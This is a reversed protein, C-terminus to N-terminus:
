RGPPAFLGYRRGAALVIALALAFGYALSASHVFWVPPTQVLIAPPPSSPGTSGTGVAQHAPPAILGALLLLLLVYAVFALALAARAWPTTARRPVAARVDKEGGEEVVEAGERRLAMLGFCTLFSAITFGIVANSVGSMGYFSCSAGCISTTAYATSITTLEALGGAAVAVVPLLYASVVRVVRPFYLFVVLLFASSTAINEVNVSGDYVFNSTLLGLPNASSGEVSSTPAIRNESFWVMVSTLAVVPLVVVLAHLADAASVRM